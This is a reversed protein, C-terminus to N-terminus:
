LPEGQGYVEYYLTVGDHVFTKGVAKNAGYPVAAIKPRSAAAAKAPPQTATQGVAFGPSVLALVVVLLHRKM